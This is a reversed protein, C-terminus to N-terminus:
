VTGVRVTRLTCRRTSCLSREARRDIRGRVTKAPENALIGKAEQYGRICSKANLLRQKHSSAGSHDSTILLARVNRANGKSRYSTQLHCRRLAELSASAYRGYPTTRRKPDHSHKQSRGRHPVVNLLDGRRIGLSTRLTLLLM